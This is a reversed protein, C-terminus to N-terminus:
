MLLLASGGAARPSAFQWFKAPGLDIEVGARDDQASGDVDVFVAPQPPFSM